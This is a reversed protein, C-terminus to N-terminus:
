FSLSCYQARSKVMQGKTSESIEDM